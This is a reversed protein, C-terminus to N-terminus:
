SWTQGGFYSYGHECFGIDGLNVRALRMAIHMSDQAFHSFFVAPNAQGLVFISLLQSCETIPRIRFM